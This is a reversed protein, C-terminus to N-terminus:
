PLLSVSGHNWRIFYTVHIKFKLKKLHLYTGTIGASLLYSLLSLLYLGSEAACCSQRLVLLFLGHKRPESTRIFTEIIDLM